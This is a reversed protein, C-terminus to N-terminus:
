LSQMIDDLASEPVEKKVMVLKDNAWHWAYYAWEANLTVQESPGEIVLYFRANKGGYHVRKSATVCVGKETEGYFDNCTDGDSNEYEETPGLKLSGNRIALVIKEGITDIKANGTRMSNIRSEINMKRAM